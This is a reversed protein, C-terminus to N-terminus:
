LGGGGRGWSKILTVTSTLPLAPSSSESRDYTSGSSISPFLRHPLSELDKARKMKECSSPGSMRCIREICLYQPRDLCPGFIGVLLLVFLFIGKGIWGRLYLFFM